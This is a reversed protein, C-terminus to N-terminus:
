SSETTFLLMCGQISEFSTSSLQVSFYDIAPQVCQRAHDIMLKKNHTVGGSLQDAVPVHLLNPTNAAKIAARVTDIVECCRLVLPGDGKLKYTAKM